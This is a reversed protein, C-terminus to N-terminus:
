DVEEIKAIQNGGDERESTQFSVNALVYRPKCCFLKYCKRFIEHNCGKNKCCYLILVAIVAMLIVTLVVYQIINHFGTYDTTEVNPESVTRDLHLLTMPESFCCQNTERPINEYYQIIDINCLIKYWRRVM